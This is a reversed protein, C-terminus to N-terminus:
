EKILLDIKCRVHQEVQECRESTKSLQEQSCQDSLALFMSIFYQDNSGFSWRIWRVILISTQESVHVGADALRIYGFCILKRIIGALTGVKLHNSPFIRTAPATAARISERTGCPKTWRLNSFTGLKSGFGCASRWDIEVAESPTSSVCASLPIIATDELTRLLISKRLAKRTFAMRRLEATSWGLSRQVYLNLTTRQTKEGAFHGASISPSGSCTPIYRPDSM